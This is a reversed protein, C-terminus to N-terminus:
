RPEGADKRVDHPRARSPRIRRISSPNRITSARHDPSLFWIGAMRAVPGRLWARVSRSRAPLAVTLVPAHRRVTRRVTSEEPLVVVRSVVRAQWGFRERGIVPALRVKADLPRLLGEVSALETKIEVVLLTGSSTHWCLLDIAGREGFHAYSVEVEM